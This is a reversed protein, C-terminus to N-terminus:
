AGRGLAGLYIYIYLLSSGTETNDLAKSMDIFLFRLVLANIAKKKILRIIANRRQGAVQRIGIVPAYYFEISVPPESPNRARKVVRVRTSEDGLSKLHRCRSALVSMSDKFLTPFLM